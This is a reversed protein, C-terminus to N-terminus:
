IVAFKQQGATRAAPDAMKGSIQASFCMTNTILSIWKTEKDFLNCIRKAVSAHPFFVIRLRCNLVRVGSWGNIIGVKLNIVALEM